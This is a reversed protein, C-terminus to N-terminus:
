SATVEAESELMGPSDQVSNLVYDRVDARVEAPRAGNGSVADWKVPDVVVRLTIRVTVRDASM